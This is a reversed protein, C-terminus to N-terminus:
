LVQEGAPYFPLLVSWPRPRNADRDRAEVTRKLLVLSRKYTRILVGFDVLATSPVLLFQFANCPRNLFQLVSRQFRGRFFREEFAVRVFRQPKLV